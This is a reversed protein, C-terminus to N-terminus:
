EPHYEEILELIYETAGATEALSEEAENLRDLIWETEDALEEARINQDTQMEEMRNAIEDRLDDIRYEQDDIKEELQDIRNLVMLYARSTEKDARAQCSSVTVVIAAIVALYALFQFIGAGLEKLSEWTIKLIKKM